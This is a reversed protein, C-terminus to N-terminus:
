APTVRADREARERELIKREEAKRGELASRRRVKAARTLERQLKSWVDDNGRIHRIRDRIRDRTEEGSQPAALLAVGAGIAVGIVIGLGLMSVSGPGPVNRYPSVTAHTKPASTAHSDDSPPTHM